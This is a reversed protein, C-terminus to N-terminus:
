SFSVEPSFFEENRHSLTFYVIRTDQYFCQNKLRRFQNTNTFGTFHAWINWWLHILPALTVSSPGLSPLYSMLGSCQWITLRDKPIVSISFFNLNALRFTPLILPHLPSITSVNILLFTLTHEACSILLLPADVLIIILFPLSYVISAKM